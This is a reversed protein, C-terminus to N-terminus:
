DPAYVEIKLNKMSETNCIRTKGQADSVGQFVLDDVM